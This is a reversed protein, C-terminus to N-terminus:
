AAFSPYPIQRLWSSLRLYGALGSRLESFFSVITIGLLPNFPPWRGPSNTSNRGAIRFWYITACRCQRRAMRISYM